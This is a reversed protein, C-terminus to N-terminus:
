FSLNHNRVNGSKYSITVRNVRRRFGRKVSRNGIDPRQEPGGSESVARSVRIEILNIRARCRFDLVLKSLQLSRNSCMRLKVYFRQAGQLSMLFEISFLNVIRDSNRLPM